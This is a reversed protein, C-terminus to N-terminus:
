KMSVPPNGGHRKYADNLALRFSESNPGLTNTFSLAITRQEDIDTAFTLSLNLCPHHETVDALARLLAPLKVMQCRHSMLPIDRTPSPIIAPTVIALM